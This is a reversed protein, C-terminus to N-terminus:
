LGEHFQRYYNPIINKNVLDLLGRKKNESIGNSKKYASQLRYNEDLSKSARSTVKVCKFENEGYSTKYFFFGKHDADVKLIKIDAMKVSENDTNKNFNRGVDSALSKLEYFSRHDMEIVKYPSGKKKATRIIAIYQDPTYIPGSKLSKKISREIVSHVSDGENQTHGKILFKHTISNIHAFTSVAYMYMSIIFKNKQQGCCNDSYFIIDLKAEATLDRSLSKLYELVCTGIEIAGRNAEGEHWVYCFANKNKMEYITFNLTNVKSVYYFNSVDGRPCPMVAQLDYVAVITSEKDEAEKKDKVKEMRSLEKEKLHNEYKSKLRNKDEGTANNYAVCDECQDKKPQYFAINFEGNFIRNFMIYNASKEECQKVYDRYIEVITKSGDIYEKQTDVRCYHSEIKPIAKIFNRLNDKINNDVRSHNGHKGRLDEVIIGSIDSRSKETVTRIFRDAVDPTSMFFSKCVRIREGDKDKM